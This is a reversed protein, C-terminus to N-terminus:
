YPIDDLEDVLREHQRQAPEDGDGAYGFWADMFDDPPASPDEANRLEWRLDPVGRHLADTDIVNQAYEELWNEHDSGLFSHQYDVSVPIRLSGKPGVNFQLRAYTEGRRALIFMVAWDSRGFCRAFTEEDTGSPEASSGPHTHVWIRAFEEPKRGRDVQEDFFDAIAQDDFKVSLPTCCQSVLRIDQVLLLDDKCTIGFGGIETDGCDRLFELKAWATPTFRLTPAPRLNRNTRRITRSSSRRSEAKSTAEASVTPASAM